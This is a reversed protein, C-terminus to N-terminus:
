DLFEVQPGAGFSVIGRAAKAAEIAATTRDPADAPYEVDIAGVHTGAITVRAKRMRPQATPVVAPAAEWAVKALEIAKNKKLADLLRRREADFEVRRREHAEEREDIAARLGKNVETLRDAEAKGAELDKQLKENEARARDREDAIAEVEFKLRELEAAPEPVVSATGDIRLVEGPAAAPLESSTDNAVPTTPATPKKAM